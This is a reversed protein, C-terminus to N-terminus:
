IFQISVQASEVDLMIIETSIFYACRLLQCTKKELDIMCDYHDRQHSEIVM